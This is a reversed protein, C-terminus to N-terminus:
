VPTPYTIGNTGTTIGTNGGMAVLIESKVRLRGASDVYTTVGVWGPGSTRYKTSVDQYRTAGEVGLGYIQRDYGAMLRQFDLSEGKTIAATIPSVLSVLHDGDFTVASGGTIATAITSGLSVYTGAIGTIKANHDGAPNTVRVTTHNVITGSPAHLYLRDSGVGSTIQVKATAIGIAAIKIKNGDNVLADQGATNIELGKNKWAFSITTSGIGAASHAAGVVISKYTPANDHKNSWQHDTVTPIPLESIYFATSAIAEGSLGATSGITLQRASTIGVIVADGMYATGIGTGRQGFRIIDGTKAAGVEGFQTGSGGANGVVIGTSYDLTVTGRSTINDSRGWLSM